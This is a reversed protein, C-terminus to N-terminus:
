IASFDVALMPVATTERTATGEARQSPVLSLSIMTSLDLSLYVRLDSALAGLSRTATGLRPGV